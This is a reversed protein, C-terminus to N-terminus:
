SRRRQVILGACAVLAAAGPAPVAYGSTILGADPSGTTGTRVVFGGRSADYTNGQSGQLAAGLTGWSGGSKIATYVISVSSPAPALSGSTTSGADSLDITFIRSNLNTTWRGGVSGEGGAHWSQSGNSVTFSWVGFDGFTASANLDGDFEFRINWANAALGPGTFAGSAVIGVGQMSTLDALTTSAFLGVAIASVSARVM